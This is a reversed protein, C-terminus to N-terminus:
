SPLETSIAPKGAGTIRPAAWPLAVAARMKRHAYVGAWSGDRPRFGAELEWSGADGEGRGGRRGDEGAQPSPLLM